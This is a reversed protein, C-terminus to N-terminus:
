FGRGNRKNEFISMVGPLNLMKNAEPTAFRMSSPMPQHGFVVGTAGYNVSSPPVYQPAPTRQFATLSEPRGFTKGFIVM